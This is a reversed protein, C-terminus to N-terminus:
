LATRKKMRTELFEVLARTGEITVAVHAPTQGDLDGCPRRFWRRAEVPSLGYALMIRATLLRSCHPIAPLATSTTM